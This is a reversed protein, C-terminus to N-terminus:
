KKNCFISNIYKRVFQLKNTKVLRQTGMNINYYNDIISPVTEKVVTQLIITYSPEVDLNNIMSKLHQVVYEKKAHGSSLNSLSEARKMLLFVLSPISSVTILSTRNNEDIMMYLTISMM